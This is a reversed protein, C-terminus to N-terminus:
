VAYLRQYLPFIGSPTFSLLRLIEQQGYLWLVAYCRKILPICSKYKRPPMLDINIGNFAVSM